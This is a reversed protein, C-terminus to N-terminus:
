HLGDVHDNEFKLLRIPFNETPAVVSALMALWAAIQQKDIVIAPRYAVEVYYKHSSSLYDIPIFLIVPTITTQSLKLIQRTNDSIKLSLGAKDEIVTDIQHFIKIIPM